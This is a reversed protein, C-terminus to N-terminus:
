ALRFVKGGAEGAAAPLQVGAEFDRGRRRSVFVVGFREAAVTVAGEGLGEAGDATAADAARDIMELPVRQWNHPLGTNVGEANHQKHLERVMYTALIEFDTGPSDEGADLLGDLVDGVCGADVLEDFVRESRQAEHSLGGFMKELVMDM